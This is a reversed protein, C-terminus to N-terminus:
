QAVRLLQREAVVQPSGAERVAIDIRLLAEGAPQVTRQWQWRRLGQSEEGRSTSQLAPLPLHAAEVARNEAVIGAFFRSEVVAASRTSESGLHVLALVALSFVALAVLLELLSFGAGERSRTAAREASM